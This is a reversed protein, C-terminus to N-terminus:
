APLVSPMTPSDPEPLLWDTSLRMPSNASLPRLLPLARNSPRSNIPIASRSRRPIRPLRIAIINWSGIVESFGYRLIPTCIACTSSSCSPMPRRCASLRQPSSSSATRIGSAPLRRCDQGCSSEPPMRWRTVIAVARNHVGASRIASSGVVASSTVTCACISASMCSSRRSKLAAMMKM